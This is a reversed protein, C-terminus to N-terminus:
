AARCGPGSVTPEAGDSANPGSRSAIWLVPRGIEASFIRAAYSNAARACASWSRREPSGNTVCVTATAEIRTSRSPGPTSSDMRWAASRWSVTSSVFISRAM